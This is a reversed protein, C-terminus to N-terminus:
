SAKTEIVGVHDVEVVADLDTCFDEDPLRGVNGLTSQAAVGNGRFRSRRLGDNRTPAELQRRRRFDPPRFDLERKEVQSDKDPRSEGARTSHVPRSWRSVRHASRNIDEPSSLTKELPGIPVPL